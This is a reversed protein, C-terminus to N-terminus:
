AGLARIFAILELSESYTTGEYKNADYFFMVARELDAPTDAVVISDGIQAAGIKGSINRTIDAFVIEGTNLKAAVIEQGKDSYQRGTNWTATTTAKM